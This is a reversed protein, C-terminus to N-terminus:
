LIYRTCRPHCGPKNSNIQGNVSDWCYSLCFPDGGGNIIKQETKSLTKGLKLISKKM